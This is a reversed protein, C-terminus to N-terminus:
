FHGNYKNQTWSFTLHYWNNLRVHVINEASLSFLNTDHMYWKSKKNRLFDVCTQAILCHSIFGLLFFFLLKRQCIKADRIDRQPDQFFFPKCEECNIGMTNHMCDDCVGGSVEGTAVYRAPDFHCKTAHNNCNCESFTWIM